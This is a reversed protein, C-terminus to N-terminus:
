RKEPSVVHLGGVNKRTGPKRQGDDTRMANPQIAKAKAPNKPAANAASTRASTAAKEPHSKRESLNPTRTKRSSPEQLSRVESVTAQKENRSSPLKSSSTHSSELVSERGDLERLTPGLVRWIMQASPRVFRSPTKLESTLSAGRMLLMVATALAEPSEERTVEGQAQADAILESWKRHFGNGRARVKRRISDPVSDSILALSIIAGFENQCYNQELSIEIAKKLRLGANKEDYIAHFHQHGREWATDLIALFIEEKSKFYHYALGHSLNAATAIDSIKTEGFGKKAFVRAAAALINERRADRIEQFAQATRPM